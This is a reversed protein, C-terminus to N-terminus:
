AGFFKTKIIGRAKDLDQGEIWHIVTGEKEMKRYWTM